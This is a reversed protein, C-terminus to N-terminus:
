AVDARPKYDNNLMECVAQKTAETISPARGQGISRFQPDLIVVVVEVAPKGSVSEITHKREVSIMSDQCHRKVYSMAATSEHEFAENFVDTAEEFRMAAMFADVESQPPLEPDFDHDPHGGRLSSSGVITGDDLVYNLNGSPHCESVLSM